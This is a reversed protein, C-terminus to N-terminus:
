VEVAKVIDQIAEVEQEEFLPEGCQECIWARVNDITVHCGDRDIHIPARGRKMTGQCHICRTVMDGNYRVFSVRALPLRCICRGGSSGDHCGRGRRQYGL